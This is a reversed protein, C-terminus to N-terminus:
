LQLRDVRWGDPGRVFRVLRAEGGHAPISLEARVVTPARDVAPPPPLPPRPEVAVYVGLVQAPDASAIAKTAAERRAPDAPLRSVPPKWALLDRVLHEYGADTLHLRLAALDGAALARHAAVLVAEPTSRDVVPTAPGAAAKAAGGGSQPSEGGCSAIALSLACALFPRLRRRM